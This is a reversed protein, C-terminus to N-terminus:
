KGTSGFGGKGRKTKSLRSVEQWVIPITQSFVIQAIREGKKILFDRESINFLIVKIEGRYDSDITGPSNLVGIGFKAALGSRPRIQGEVGPPLEIAMGTNVIGYSKAKIVKGEAAFIDLGVSGKTKYEPLPINSLRKIKVKVPAM